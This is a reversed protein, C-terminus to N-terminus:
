AGWDVPEDPNALRYLCLSCCSPDPPRRALGVRRPGCDPRTAGCLADLPAKPDAVHYRSGTSTRFWRKM